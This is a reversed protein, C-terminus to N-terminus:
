QRVIQDNKAPFGFYQIYNKLLAKIKSEDLSYEAAFSIKNDKVIKLSFKIIRAISHYVDKQQNIGLEDRYDSFIEQSLLDYIQDVTKNQDWYLILLRREADTLSEIITSVLKKVISVEPELSPSHVETNPIQPEAPKEDSDSKKDISITQPKNILDIQNNEILSNEIRSFIFRYDLQDINLTQCIVERSKNQRLLKFVRIHDDGLVKICKPVYGTVGTKWKLWDKFTFDSNLVVKIYTDFRAGNKGRYLCSKNKAIGALWLYSDSIDDSVNISYGTKTRYEWSEEPIGRNNFKSSIYYLEDTYLELFRSFATENGKCILEAFELDKTLTKSINTEVSNQDILLL